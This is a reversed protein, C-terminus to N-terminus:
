AGCCGAAHDPLAQHARAGVSAADLARTRHEDHQRDRAASGGARRASRAAHQAARPEVALHCRSVHGRRDSLAASARARLAGVRVPLARSLPLRRALRVAVARRGPDRALRERENASARCRPWCDRPTRITRSRSCSACTRGARRDRGRVDRDSAVDVRRGRRPRAHHAADVDGDARQLAALLELIQAQITVDLATTPEDAILSRPRADHAGDRDDRAPAHRGLAPASLRKAREAPDPIGVVGLMEVARAWAERRSIDRTCARAGRGDPRRGHLVPNLATMPEQFIMAIRNGRIARMSEDDLTLLDTGEFEIQAAQSSAARASSSDCCRSRRHGVQRLRIRRRRRGDRESRHRVLRWRRRAGRRRETRFYTRLEHVSLLPETM